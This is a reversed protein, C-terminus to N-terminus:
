KQSLKDNNKFAGVSLSVVPLKNLTAPVTVAGKVNDKPHVNIASKGDESVYYQWTITKGNNKVNVSHLGNKYIITLNKHGYSGKIYELEGYWKINLKKNQWGIVELKDIDNAKKQSLNIYIEKLNNCDKFADVEIKHLKKQIRVIKLNTCGEFANEGITKLKSPLVVETINTCGKFAGDAIKSVPYKNDM